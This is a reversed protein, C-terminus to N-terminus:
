DDNDDDDRDSKRAVATQPGKKLSLYQVRDAGGIAILYHPPAGTTWTYTHTAGASRHDATAVDLVDAYRVPAGDPKAVATVYRVRGEPSYGVMLSAYHPDNTLSWVEQRKEERDLKAEGALREHVAERRADLRVGLIGSPAPSTTACAVLLASVLGAFAVRM